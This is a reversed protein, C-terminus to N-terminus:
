FRHKKLYENTMHRLYYGEARLSDPFLSSWIMDDCTYECLINAYMGRNLCWQYEDECSKIRFFQIWVLLLLVVIIIIILIIWKKKTM